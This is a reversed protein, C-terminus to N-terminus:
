DQNLKAEEDKLLEAFPWKGIEYTSGDLYLPEKYKYRSLEGNFHARALTDRTCSDVWVATIRDYKDVKINYNEYYEWLEWRVWVRTDSRNYDQIYVEYDADSYVDGKAITQANASLTAFIILAITMIIIGIATRLYPDRKM